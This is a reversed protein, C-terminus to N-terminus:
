DRPDRSAIRISTITSLHTPISRDLPSAFTHRRVGESRRPFRACCTRVNEVIVAPSCASASQSTHSCTSNTTISAVLEYQNQTYSTSSSRPRVTTITLGRCNLFVGPRRLLSTISLTHSHLSASHPSSAGLKTGGLAM